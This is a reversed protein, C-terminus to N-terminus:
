SLFHLSSFWNYTFYITKKLFNCLFIFISMMSITAPLPRGGPTTHLPHPMYHVAVQHPMYHSRGGPTAHLPRAVQHPMYHPTVQHPMYPRGGPIAHLPPLCRIHCMTPQLHIWAQGTVTVWDNSISAEPTTKGKSGRTTRHWRWGKQQIYKYAEHVLRMMMMMVVWWVGCSVNTRRRPRLGWSSGRVSFTWWSVPFSFTATTSLSVPLFTLPRLWTRTDM